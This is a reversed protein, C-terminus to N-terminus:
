ASARPASSSATLVAAVEFGSGGKANDASMLDRLLQAIVYIRRRSEPSREGILANIHKLDQDATLPANM